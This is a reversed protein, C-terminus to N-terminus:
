GVGVTGAEVVVDSRKLGVCWVLSRQLWKNPLKAQIGKANKSEENTYGQVVRASPTYSFLFDCM